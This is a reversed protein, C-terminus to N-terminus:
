LDKWAEDEEIHEWDRLSPKSLEFCDVEDYNLEEKNMYTYSGLNVLRQVVPNVM